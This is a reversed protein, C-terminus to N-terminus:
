VADETPRLLAAIRSPMMRDALLAAADEPTDLDRLPRLLEVSLGEDTALARTAALVQDTSWLAADIGFLGVHPHRMGILYYGGDLAPGLVVDKHELSTLAATLHDGTLIPADTGIVLLPGAGDAFAELVASSLRQGLNQGRQVMLRVGPPAVHGTSDEAEGPAYALYTRAGLGSTLDVTHRILEAQLVACGDPGLLPHLRTKVTGPRPAKALVLVSPTHRTSM